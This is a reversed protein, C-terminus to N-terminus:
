RTERVFRVLQTCLDDQRHLGNRWDECLGRWRPVEPLAGNLPALANWGLFLKRLAAELSADRAGALMRDLFAVLKTYNCLFNLLYQGLNNAVPM